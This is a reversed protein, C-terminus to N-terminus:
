RGDFSAFYTAAMDDAAHGLEAARRFREAVAPRRGPPRGRGPSGRRRTARGQRRARRHFQSLLGGRSDRREAPTEAVAAGDPELAKAKAPTRNWARVPLGARLMSRGMAAGMIGTGLLAVSPRAGAQDTM